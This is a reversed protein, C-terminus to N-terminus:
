REAYLQVPIVRAYARFDRDSTFIQWRRAITVACILFDVGSGPVGHRRCHNSWHSANEFDETSLTEDRFARLQDRIREFQPHERIGSLLEQRIPGVLQVRGDQILESLSQVKEREAQSLAGKHRRM